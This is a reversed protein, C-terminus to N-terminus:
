DIQMSIKECGESRIAFILLVFEKRPLWVHGSRISQLVPFESLHVNTLPPDALSYILVSASYKRKVKRSGFM